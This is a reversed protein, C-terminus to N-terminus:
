HKEKQSKSFLIVSASVKLSEEKWLLTYPFFLHKQESKRETKLTKGEFYVHCGSRGGNYTKRKTLLNEEFRMRRKKKKM